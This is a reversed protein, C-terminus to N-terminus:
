SLPAPGPGVGKVGVNAPPAREDHGRLVSIALTAAVAFFGVQIHSLGAIPAAILPALWVLGLIAQEWGTWPRRTSDAVLLALPIALLALDHDNLHPSVLLSASVLIASALPLAVRGNWWAWAVIGAALAAVVLHGTYATHIEFGIMRLAVFLSPMKHWPLDGAELVATAFGANEFFGIWSQMGFALISLGILAITTIVAAIFATWRRRCALAVPLLLGLTPKFILLGILVGAIVPRRDLLLIAGGFLAAVFLANQGQVVNLYVGPFAFTLWLTAPPSTMRAIMAAFAAIGLACWLGWALPYSILALPTVFLQFVPPYSWIFASQNAPVAVRSAALIQDPQYVADPTGALTLHSASWFTIFDAGLVQGSPDILDSSRVVWLATLAIYGIIFFIPYHRRHPAALFRSVARPDIAHPSDPM